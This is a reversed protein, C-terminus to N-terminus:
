KLVKEILDNVRNINELKTMDLIPDTDTVEDFVIYKNDGIDEISLYKGKNEFTFQRGTVNGEDDLLPELYIKLTM